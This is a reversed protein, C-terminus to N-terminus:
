DHFKEYLRKDVEESSIWKVRGNALDDEFKDIRAIAEEESFPGLSPFYDWDLDDIWDDDSSDEYEHKLVATANAVPECAVGVFEEEEFVPYNKEEM